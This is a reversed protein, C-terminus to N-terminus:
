IPPRSREGYGTLEVYGEGAPRGQADLARVPGEWYSLGEVLRSRNEAERVEPEVVLTVGEGPVSVDWGSPYTAGSAASRWTGRARVSWADEALVRVAGDRGVLTAYAFSTAGDARRLAYVMLDRGDVLRLALWDWGVQDPALQSSGFEHDMWSTGRVRLPRGGLTVTGETALRTVSAYLSAYGEQRSKRSLGDPGQLAVPRSPVARLSIGLGQRRDRASLVFAGDELGVSWRGEDGAPARAWAIPGEPPRGFGGLPGAARWLVEAFLHEGSAVDTVALHAMVADAAAWASSSAFAPAEPLIGVRFFTLQYGLRRGPEGEVELVGTFYWWENRYGAHAFHDAPFSWRHGPSAARFGPAGAPAAAALALLACAALSCRM